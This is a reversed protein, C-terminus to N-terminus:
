AQKIIKDLPMRQIRKKAIKKIQKTQKNSVNEILFLELKSCNLVHCFLWDLESKELIHHQEYWLSIENKLQKLNGM